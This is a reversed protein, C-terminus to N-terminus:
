FRSVAGKLLKSFLAQDFFPIRVMVMVEAIGTCHEQWKLECALQSRDHHPNTIYGRLLLNFSCIYM